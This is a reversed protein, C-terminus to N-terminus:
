EKVVDNIVNVVKKLNENNVTITYGQLVAKLDEPKRPLIDIIKSIHQDKLRPIKLKNIKEILEKAKKSDLKIFQNIYEETKNARFNLEKDREKIKDLEEKLEVMSIPIENIIEPKSM